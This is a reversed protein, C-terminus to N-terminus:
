YEVIYHASYLSPRKFCSYTKLDLDDTLENRREGAVGAIIV